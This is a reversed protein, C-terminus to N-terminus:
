SFLETSLYREATDPIIVVILKKNNGERKAMNLAAWVAAGSSIGCLIGEDSALRRAMDMAAEDKVKIVEDIIDTNLVDPIFGAGIGQIKHPGANEGSLVASQAPEVAIVKIGPNHSKLIEGAGTVTGGTGVGAIFIDVKGETDSWVEEGTTVRHIQPNAPNKFQQPMFTGRKEKVIRKAEEIAGSMGKEAPTLIIKAGIYKLLKRRELSMSEPMILILKYGKVASVLALGIGTNGSTPEVVTMGSKLLGDREASEIMSLAIRDKISSGPNFFELKAAIKVGCENNISKLWVLPTKGILSTIDDVIRM